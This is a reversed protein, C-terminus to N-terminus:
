FVIAVGVGACPRGTTCVGGFMAPKISPHLLRGLLDLRRPTLLSVARFLSDNSAKLTDVVGLVSDTAASLDEWAGRWKATQKVCDSILSDRPATFEICSNPVPVELVVRVREQLVTDTKRITVVNRKNAALASLAVALSTEAHSRLKTAETAAAQAQRVRREGQCSNAVLAVALGVAVAVVAWQAPSNAM